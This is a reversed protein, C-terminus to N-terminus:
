EARRRWHMVEVGDAAFEAELRGDTALTELLFGGPDLFWPRAWVVWFGDAEGLKARLFSRAAAPGDLLPQNYSDIVAGPGSYYFSFVETVSPVLVPEGAANAADLYVAAARVDEKAYRGDWYYGALSALTLGVFWIGMVAQLRPRLRAAGAALLVIVWPMAAAAYRANWPKINRVALVALIALPVGIWLLLFLRRRGLGGLGATGLVIAPFAGAALWPWHGCLIAGAELLHLEALSPGLSFGFVYSFFSYPIALITFTSEGRLAEGTGAGPIIREVAWIGTAELLWPSVLLLGGGFSALWLWPRRSRGPGVWILWTLGLAVWLFIAALNGAMAAAGALALLFVRRWTPGEQQMVLFLHGALICFLIMFAYGRGEQSYWIHFPNIALLLAAWHGARRDWLRAAATGLLPVAAIGALASPLRLMLEPDDRLRVLVWAVAQYLPGQISDMIQELFVLGAGPRIHNWTMLEDVWLSASTLHHFRLLAALLTAALLFGPSFLEGEEEHDDLWDPRPLGVDGGAKTPNM